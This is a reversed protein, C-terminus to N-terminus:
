NDQHRTEDFEINGLELVVGVLSWIKDQEQKSFGIERMSASIEKFYEGDNVHSSSYCGSQRLYAYQDPKKVGPMGSAIYAYFAHFTREGAAISVVRSKELLYSTISAGKIHNDEGFFIQM